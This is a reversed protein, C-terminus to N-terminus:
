KAGKRKRKGAKADEDEKKKVQVKRRAVALWKAALGQWESEAAKVKVAVEQRIRAVNEGAVAKRREMESRKILEARDFMIKAQREEEGRYKETNSQESNMLEDIALLQNRHDQIMETPAAGLEERAKREEAQFEKKRTEKLKELEARRVDIDLSIRDNQQALKTVFLKRERELEDTREIVHNAADTEIKHIKVAAEAELTRRDDELDSGRKLLDRGELRMAAGFFWDDEEPMMTQLTELDERFTESRLRFKSEMADRAMRIWRLALAKTAATIDAAEGEDIEMAKPQIGAAADRAKKMKLERLKQAYREMQKRADARPFTGGLKKRAAVLWKSMMRGEPSTRTVVVPEFEVMDEDEDSSIDQPRSLRSPGPARSAQLLREQAMSDECVNCRTCYEAHARFYAKWLQPELENIGYQNEFGQILRDVATIDPEGKTAVHATLKVHNREPTRGCIECTTKKNQDIIGRVLKSFARRKRAKALWMRAIALASGTLPDRPWNRRAAELEDEEDSSIDERDGPKRFGEGMAMLEAYVDRVYEITPRGDPGPQDL